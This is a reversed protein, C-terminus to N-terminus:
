VEVTEEEAPQPSIAEITEVLQIDHRPFVSRLDLLVRDDEVRAILPPSSQRLLGALKDAAMGEPEVVIVCTPLEQGAVANGALSTTGEVVDTSRVSRTAQIQSALRQSRNKLNDLPTALLELLPIKQRAQEQDRYLDLTAALAALLPPAIRLARALPHKQIKEVLQRRGVIIGCQPGGVLKDGSFLVLDAGAGVCKSVVPADPLGFDSLDSLSGYGLCDIVPVKHRHGLEIIESTPADGTAGVVQFNAPRALLLAATEHGIAEGYDSAYTKNATGVERPVVGAAAM